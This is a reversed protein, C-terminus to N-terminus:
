PAADADKETRSGRRATELLGASPGPELASTCWWSAARSDCRCVGSPVRLARSATRDEQREHLNKVQGGVGGEAEGPRGVPHGPGGEEGGLPGLRLHPPRPFVAAPGGGDARGTVRITCDSETEERHPSSKTQQNTQKDSIHKRENESDPNQHESSQNPKEM